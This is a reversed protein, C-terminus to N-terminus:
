SLRGKGRKKPNTKLSYVWLFVVLAVALGGIWLAQEVRAPDDWYKAWNKVKPMPGLTALAVRCDPAARKSWAHSFRAFVRLPRLRGTPFLRVSEADNTLGRPM